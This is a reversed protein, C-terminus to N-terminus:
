IKWSLGGGSRAATRQILTVNGFERRAAAAADKRSMGSGVLEEVREEIHEEMEKSLESYLRRRSLLRRLWNM